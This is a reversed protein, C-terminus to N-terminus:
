LFPFSVEGNSDTFNYELDKTSFPDNNDFRYDASISYLIDKTRGGLIFPKYGLPFRKGEFTDIYVFCIVGSVPNGNEDEIKLKLPDKFPEGEKVETPLDDIQSIKLSIPFFYHPYIGRPPLDADNSNPNFVETWVTVIGDVYFMLYAVEESAGMVKFDTFEALGNIDSEKSV